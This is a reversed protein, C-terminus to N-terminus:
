SERLWPARARFLWMRFTNFAIATADQNRSPNFFTSNSNNRYNALGM